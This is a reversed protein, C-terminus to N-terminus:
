TRVLSKLYARGKETLEWGRHLRLAPRVLGAERLARLHDPNWFRSRLMPGSKELDSLIWRM